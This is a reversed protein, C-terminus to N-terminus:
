IRLVTASLYERSGRGILLAHFKIRAVKRGAVKRVVSAINCGGSCSLQLGFIISRVRWVQRLDAM